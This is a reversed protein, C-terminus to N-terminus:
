EEDGLKKGCMPCYEEKEKGESVIREYELFWEQFM